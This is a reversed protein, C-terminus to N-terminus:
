SKAEATVDVVNGGGGSQEKELKDIYARLVMVLQMGPARLVSVLRSGPARLQNILKIYLEQKTPLNELFSMDDKKFIQGEFVALTYDVELKAEKQMDRFPKLAAPIEESHVFLWANMGQLHPALAKWKADEEVTKRMLTNKVILLTTTEPLSRRLDQMQKVSIGTYDLGALLFCNELEARVKEVTMVKKEKSLAMKILPQKRDCQERQSKMGDMLGDATWAGPLLSAAGGHNGAFTTSHRSGLARSECLISLKPSTRPPPLLVAVAAPQAQQRLRLRRGSPRVCRCRETSLLAQRAAGRRGDSPSTSVSPGANERWSAAAVLQGATAM